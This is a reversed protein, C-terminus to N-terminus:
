FIYVLIVLKYTNMGNLPNTFINDMKRLVKGSTSKIKPFIQSNQQRLDKTWTQVTKRTPVNKKLSIYPLAYPYSSVNKLLENCEM